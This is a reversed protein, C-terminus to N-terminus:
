QFFLKIHCLQTSETWLSFIAHDGLVAHMVGLGEILRQKWSVVCRHSFREDQQAEKERQTNTQPKKNKQTLWLSRLIWLSALRTDRCCESYGPGMRLTITIACYHWPSRPLSLPWQQKRFSFNTHQLRRCRWQKLPISQQSQQAWFYM